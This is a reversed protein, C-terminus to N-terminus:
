GGSGPPHPRDDRLGARLGPAAHAAAEAGRADARGPLPGTRPGAGSACPLPRAAGAAGAPRFRAALAPFAVSALRLALLTALGVRLLALVLNAGPSLLFLSMRHDKAVPGSWSLSYSTWSWSPIGAGTQIVAHPDQQYANTRAAAGAELTNLEFGGAKAPAKEEPLSRPTAASPRGPAPKGAVGAKQQRPADGLYGLARLREEQETAVPEPAQPPPPPAVKVALFDAAEREVPRFPEEAAPFLGMRLQGVLFPVLTLVLVLLGIAWTIRALLRLVGAPAAHMVALAGLLVLWVLQPAGPEGQLLILAGLALLGPSRGLLKGAALSTVLVFFLAFLNWRGFWSGPVRDVGTAGLLRWGPPVQLDARLSQVDAAWGM